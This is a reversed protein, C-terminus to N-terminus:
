EQWTLNEAGVCHSVVTLVELELPDLVRQQDGLTGPMCLCMACLCICLCFVWVYICGYM